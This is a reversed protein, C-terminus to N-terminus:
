KLYLRKKPYDIIAKGRKLVDAGIIGHVPLANHMTLAHNVHTLDFLVLAVKKIKWTGIELQNKKSIQTEMESSGAGAAKIESFETKLGFHEISDLGLCTNSAGTDLIFRGEIGNLTANIEFHNTATPTLGIATYGQLSLLKKLTLM